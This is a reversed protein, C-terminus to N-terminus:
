LEQIQTAEMTKIREPGTVFLVIFIITNLDLPKDGILKRSYM